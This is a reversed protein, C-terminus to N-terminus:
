KWSVCSFVRMAKLASSPTIRVSSSCPSFRDMDCLHLSMSRWIGASMPTDLAIRSFTTKQWWSSDLQGSM